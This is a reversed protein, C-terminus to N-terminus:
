GSRTGAFCKLRMWLIKKEHFKIQVKGGKYDCDDPCVPTEWEGECNIPCVETPHCQVKVTSPCKGKGIASKTVNFVKDKLGRLGLPCM